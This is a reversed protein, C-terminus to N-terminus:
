KPQTTPAVEFSFSQEGWKMSVSATNEEDTRIDFTLSETFAADSSPVEVRLIDAAQDYNYAGWQDAEKNFIITWTEKGPITFLAYRGAPLLQGEILVDKNVKFTTAENAGTRWVKGYPVLVSWITRGKVGPQSYNITINLDGLTAQAKASPSLRKSANSQAHSAFATVTILCVLLLLRKTM